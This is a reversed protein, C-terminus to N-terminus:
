RGPSLRARLEVPVEVGAFSAVGRFAVDLPEGAAARAAADGAGALSLRVPLSIVRSRGAPVAAVAHGEVAAVERGAVRLSGRLAGGPLPFANPNSVEIKVELTAGGLGADRLALGALALRPPRPAPVKGEHSLPVDLVGFPTEIGARCGIRWGLTERELLARVLGPVDAYRVRLPLDVHAVGRAPIRLGGGAAGTVAQRGEVELRYELSALRLGLANPNEIRLRLKLTVGELDAEEPEWSEVALRPPDVAEGVLRGMGACGGALGLALFAAFHGSESRVTAM